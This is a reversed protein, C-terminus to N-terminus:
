CVGREQERREQGKAEKSGKGRCALLLQYSYNGEERREGRGKRRDGKQEGKREEGARESGQERKM